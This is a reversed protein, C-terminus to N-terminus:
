KFSISIVCEQNKFTKTTVQISDNYTYKSIFNKFEEKNFYNLQCANYEIYTPVIIKKM